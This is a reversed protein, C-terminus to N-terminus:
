KKNASHLPSLSTCPDSHLGGYYLREKNQLPLLLTEIGTDWSDSVDGEYINQKTKLKEKSSFKFMFAIIPNFQSM